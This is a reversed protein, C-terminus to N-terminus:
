PMTPAEPSSIREIWDHISGRYIKTGVHGLEVSPDLWVKYGLARIDAFFGMDEGVLDEGKYEWRFIGPWTGPYGVLKVRPARSALNEVIDRRLVTFGLGTGAIEFCGDDNPEIRRDVFSVLYNPPEQKTPYAACVVDLQQSLRLFKIVDEARWVMDSDFCFMRTKNSKLFTDTIKIRNEVVAGGSQFQMECPVSHARLLAITEILSTTTLHHLPQHVPMALFVSIGDLSNKM